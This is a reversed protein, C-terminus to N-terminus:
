QPKKRPLLSSRPYRLSYKKIAEKISKSEFGSLKRLLEKEQSVLSLDLLGLMLRTEKKKFDSLVSRAAAMNGGQLAEQIRERAHIRELHIERFRRSHEDFERSLEVLQRDGILGGQGVLLSELTEYKEFLMYFSRSLYMVTLMTYTLPIVIFIHPAHYYVILSALVGVLTLFIGLVIDTVQYEIKLPRRYLVPFLKYLIGASAKRTLFKLEEIFKYIPWIILPLLIVGLSLSEPLFPLFPLSFEVRALYAIWVISVAILLNKFLNRLAAAFENQFRKDESAKGFGQLGAGFRQLFKRAKKPYIKMFFEAIEGKREFLYPSALTTSITLLFALSIIDAAHPIVGSANNAIIISFEGIPFMLLGTTVASKADLGLATGVVGYSLIKALTYLIFMAVLIYVFTPSSPLTVTSGFSVFFFLIFFERFFGLERKIREGYPTEALAFGVFYAGLAESLGLFTKGFVAVLIGMGIAYIAMKDGHGYAHLTALVYKSVKSVVYFMAIVFLLASVVLTNLSKQASISTLFVLVMIGVFDEVVLSSLATKAEHTDMLGREIIFKVAIVTSAMPLLSGIVIAELDNFGFVKAIFFGIVFTLLMEIGVLITAIGGTEKFKKLSLELGLYFLLMLLGLDGFVPALGEGPKLYNLLFPGLAIGAIVYGISSSQKLRSFIFGFVLAVIVVVGIDIVSIQEIM